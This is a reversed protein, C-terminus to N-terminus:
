VSKRGVLTGDAIFRAITTCITGRNRGLVSAIESFTAGEDHMRIITARDSGSLFRYERIVGAADWREQTMGQAIM